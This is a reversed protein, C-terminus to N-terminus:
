DASRSTRAITAVAGGVFDNIGRLPDLDDAFQLVAAKVRLGRLKEISFDLMGGGDICDRLADSRRLLESELDVCRCMEDGRGLRFRAEKLIEGCRQGKIRAEDRVEILGGQQM